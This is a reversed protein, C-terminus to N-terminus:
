TSRGNPRMYTCLVAGTTTVRHDALQLAHLSGDDPFIDKGGGVLIPDVMFRFEDVLDLAVLSKVLTASGIALLAGENREKLAPVSEELPGRLVVSHDWELPDALTKTAVYKTKTNLPEALAQEEESADPWHSAFGEYTRRGLVFGSAETLNRVVWEMSADDFYQLHWGGHDFGGSPDENEAGPAQVVGDLTMWEQVILRGM